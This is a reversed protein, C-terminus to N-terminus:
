SEVMLRCNFNLSVTSLSINYKSLGSVAKLTHVISGTFKISSSKIDSLRFWESSDDITKWGLESILKGLKRFNKNHSTKLSSVDPQNLYTNAPVISPTCKSFPLPYIYAFLTPHSLLTIVFLLTPETKYRSAPSSSIPLSDLRTRQFQSPPAKRACAFSMVNTPTKLSSAGLQFPSYFLSLIFVKRKTHKKTKTTWKSTASM